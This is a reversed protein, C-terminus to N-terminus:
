FPKGLSRRYASQQEVIGSGAFGNATGFRYSPAVSAGGSYYSRYGYPRAEYGSRYSYPTPTRRAPARCDARVASAGSLAMSTVVAAMFLNRFTMLPKM